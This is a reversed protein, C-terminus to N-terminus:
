ASPQTGISGPNMNPHFPRSRDRADKKELRTRVRELRAKEKKMRSEIATLKPAPKTKKEAKPAVSKPPVRRRSKGDDALSKLFAKRKVTHFQVVNVAPMDALAEAVSFYKKQHYMQGYDKIQPPLVYVPRDFCPKILHEQKRIAAHQHLDHLEIVIYSGEEKYKAKRFLGYVALPSFMKLLKLEWPEPQWHYTKKIQELTSVAM